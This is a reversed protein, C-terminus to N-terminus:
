NNGDMCFFCEIYGGPCTYTQSRCDNCGYYCGSENCEEPGCGQAGGHTSNQQAKSLLKAGELKLINKLMIYSNLILKATFM